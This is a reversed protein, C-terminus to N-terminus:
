RSGRQTDESQSSFASVLNDMAAFVVEVSYGAVFALALPAISSAVGPATSENLFWAVAFGSLAGLYLRLMLRIDSEPSYVYDRIEHSLRRLVYACAGLLGYFLPLVYVNLAELSILGALVVHQYHGQKAVREAPPGHVEARRPAREPQVLSRPDVRDALVDQLEADSGPDPATDDPGPTAGEAPDPPPSDAQAPEPDSGSPAADVVGAQGQAGEDGNGPDPDHAELEVRPSGAIPAVVDDSPAFVESQEAELLRLFSLKSWLTLLAYKAELDKVSFELDQRAEAQKHAYEAVDNSLRLSYAESGDLASAASARQDEAIEDLEKLSQGKKDELSAIEQRGDQIKEELTRLDNLINAGMGAYFQIILLVILALVSIIQYRRAALRAKSMNKRGRLTWVTEGYRDSGAKISAVTAPKIQAAIEQYARWFAAEAEPDLASPGEEAALEKARTIAAYTGTEVDLGKQASFALILDVENLAQELSLPVGIEDTFRPSM